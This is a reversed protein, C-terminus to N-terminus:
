ESVDFMISNYTSLVPEFFLHVGEPSKQTKVSIIEYAGDLPALEEQMVKTNEETPKKQTYSKCSLLLIGCSVLLVVLRKM